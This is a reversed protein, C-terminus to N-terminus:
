TVGPEPVDSPRLLICVLPHACHYWTVILKMCCRTLLAMGQFLMNHLPKVCYPKMPIVFQWLSWPMKMSKFRALHNRSIRGCGVVAIHIKRGTITVM